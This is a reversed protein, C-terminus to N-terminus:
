IKNDLIDVTLQCLSALSHKTNLLTGAIDVNYIILKINIDSFVRIINNQEFKQFREQRKKDYSEESESARLPYQLSPNSGPYVLICYKAKLTQAYYALQYLDSNNIQVKGDNRLSSYKNKIDIIVKEESNLKEVLIDPIINKEAIKPVIDHEISPQLLVKFRNSSVLKTMQVSCYSEFVKDMDLTFSPIFLSSNDEMVSRGEIIAKAFALGMEYDPRPLSFTNIGFENEITSNDLLRVDKLFDLIVTALNRLENSSSNQACLNLAYKLIQNPYIDISSEIDRSIPKSFTGSESITEQIAISGRLKINSGFVDEFKRAFGNNKIRIIYDILSFGLFDLTSYNANENMVTSLLNKDNLNLLSINSEQALGLCKGISVNPIKPQIDLIFSATKIMGISSTARIIYGEQPIYELIFPRSAFHYYHEKLANELQTKIVQETEEIKESFVKLPIVNGLSLKFRPTEDM